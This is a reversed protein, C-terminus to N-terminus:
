RGGGSRKPQPKSPRYYSRNNNNRRRKAEQHEQYRSKAVGKYYDTKLKAHRLKTQYPTENKAQEQEKKYAEHYVKKLENQAKKNLFLGGIAMPTAIISTFICLQLAATMVWLVTTNTYSNVPIYEPVGYIKDLENNRSSARALQMDGFFGIVPILSLGKSFTNCCNNFYRDAEMDKEYFEDDSDLEDQTLNLNNQLPAQSIANLSDNQQSSTIVEVLEINSSASNLNQQQLNQQSNSSTISNSIQYVDSAIPRLTSTIKNKTKSIPNMGFSLKNNKTKGNKQADFTPTSFSMIKLM